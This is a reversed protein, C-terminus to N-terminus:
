AALSKKGFAINTILNCYTAYEVLRDAMEPSHVYQHGIGTDLLGRAATDSCCHFVVSAM